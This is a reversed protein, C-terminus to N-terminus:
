VKLLQSVTTLEATNDVTVTEDSSGSEVGQLCRVTDATLEVACVLSVCHRTVASCASGVTIDRERACYTYLM